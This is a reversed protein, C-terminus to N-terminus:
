PMASALTDIAAMRSKRGNVLSSVDFYVTQVAAGDAAATSQVEDYFRGDAGRVQTQRIKVVLHRNALVDMEERETMVVYASKQADGNGSEMLSQILGNAVASEIASGAADGTEALCDSRLAHAADITFDLTLIEDLKQLATACDKGKSAAAAQDLLAATKNGYPDWQDTYPYAARLATFDVSKDGAAARRTLDFYSAQLRKREAFASATEASTLARDGLAHRSCVDNNWNADFHGGSFKIIGPFRPYVLFTGIGNADIKGSFVETYGPNLTQGQFQNGSLTLTMISTRNCQGQPPILAVWNGDFAGALAPSSSAALVFAAVILTRLEQVAFRRRVEV